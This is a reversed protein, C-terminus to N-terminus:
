VKEEKDKGILAIALVSFETAVFLVINKGVDKFSLGTIPQPSDHVVKPKLNREKLLDGKFLM